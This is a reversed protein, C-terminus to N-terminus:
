HGRKFLHEIEELSKGQTEPLYRWTFFITVVLFFIFSVFLGGVGILTVIDLVTFAILANFFLNFFTAITLLRGRYREPYIEALYVWVVPGLSTAFSAIYFLIGLEIWGCLALILGLMMGFSGYLLLPKRGLRDVFYIAFITMLLNVLGIGVSVFLAVERSAIGEELLLRPAYYIIANIGTVQQLIALCIGLALPRKVEPGFSLIRGKERVPEHTFQFRRSLVAGFLGVAAVAASLAYPTRWAGTPDILYNASYGVLIGITIALQHLSVIRGRKDKQSIEALFMPAVVSSSGIAVGSLLRGVILGDLSESLSFLIAGAFYLAYSIVLANRRGFWDIFSAICLLGIFSGILLSGVVIEQQFPTHLLTDQLFVLTGSIVSFNFGILFSALIIILYIM